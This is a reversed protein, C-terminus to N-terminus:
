GLGLGLGLGLWAPGFHEALIKCIKRNPHHSLYNTWAHALKFQNLKLFSVSIITSYM